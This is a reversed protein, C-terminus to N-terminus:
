RLCPALLHARASEAPTFPEGPRAPVLAGHQRSPVKLTDGDGCLHAVGPHVHM